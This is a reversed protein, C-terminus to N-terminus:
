SVMFSVFIINQNQGSPPIDNEEILSFDLYPKDATLTSLLAAGSGPVSSGGGTRATECYFNVQRSKSKNTSTSNNKKKKGVLFNSESTEKMKTVKLTLEVHLQSLYIM